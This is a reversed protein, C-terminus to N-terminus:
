DHPSFMFRVRPCRQGVLSRSQLAPGPCGELCRKLLMRLVSEPSPLALAHSRANSPFEVLNQGAYRIADAEHREIAGLRDVREVLLHDVSQGIYEGPPLTVGRHARHH